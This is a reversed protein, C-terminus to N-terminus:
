EHFIVSTMLLDHSYICRFIMATFCNLTGSQTLTSQHSNTHRLMISALSGFMTPFHM